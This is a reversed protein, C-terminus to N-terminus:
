ASQLKPILACTYGVAFVVRSTEASTMRHQQSMVCLQHMTFGSFSALPRYSLIKELLDVQVKCM